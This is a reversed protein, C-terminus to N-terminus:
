IVKGTPATAWQEREKLEQFGAALLRTRAEHVATVNLGRFV